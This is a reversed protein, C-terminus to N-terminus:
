ESVVVTKSLHVHQWTDKLGKSIHHAKHAPFPVRQSTLKAIRFDPRGISWKKETHSDTDARHGSNQGLHFFDHNNFSVLKGLIKGLAGVSGPGARVVPWWWILKYFQFQIPCPCPNDSLKFFLTFTYKSYKLCWFSMDNWSTYGLYLGWIKMLSM